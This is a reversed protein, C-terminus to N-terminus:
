ELSEAVSKAKVPIRYFNLYNDKVFMAFLSHTRFIFKYKLIGKQIMHFSLVKIGQYEFIKYERLLNTVIKILTQTILTSPLASLFVSLPNTLKNFISPTVLSGGVDYMTDFTGEILEDMNNVGFKKLQKNIITRIIGVQIGAVASIILTRVLVDQIDKRIIAARIMGPNDNINEGYMHYGKSLINPLKEEKFKKIYKASREKHIDSPGKISVNMFAENLVSMDMDEVLSQSDSYNIIYDLNDNEILNLVESRQM